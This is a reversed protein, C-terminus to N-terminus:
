HGFAHCVLSTVYTVVTLSCPIVRVEINPECMMLRSLGIVLFVSCALCIIWALTRTREFWRLDIAEIRYTDHDTIMTSM